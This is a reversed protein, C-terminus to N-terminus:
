QKTGTPLGISLAEVLPQLEAKIFAETMPHGDYKQKYYLNVAEFLCLRVGLGIEKKHQKAIVVLSMAAGIPAATQPYEGMVQSHFPNLVVKERIVPTSYRGKSKKSM